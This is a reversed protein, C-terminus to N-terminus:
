QFSDQDANVTFSLYDHYIVSHRTVVDDPMVYKKGLAAFIGLYSAICNVNMNKTVFHISYVAACVNCMCMYSGNYVVALM